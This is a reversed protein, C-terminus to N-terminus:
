KCPCGDCCPKGACHCDGHCQCAKVCHCHKAAFPCKCGVAFLSLAAIFAFLYKM